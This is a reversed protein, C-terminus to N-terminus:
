KFWQRSSRFINCEAAKHLLTEGNLDTERIDAGYDILLQVLEPNGKRSSSLIPICINREEIVVMNEDYIPVNTFLDAGKGILLIIAESIGAKAALNLPLDFETVSEQLNPNDINAFKNILTDKVKSDRDKIYLEILKGISRPLRQKKVMRTPSIEDLCLLLKSHIKEIEKARGTSRGSEERLDKLESAKVIRELASIAILKLQRSPSFASREIWQKADQNISTVKPQSAAAIIAAAAVAEEAVPADIEKTQNATELTKEIKESGTECDNLESLWDLATDNGFPKNSWTGM